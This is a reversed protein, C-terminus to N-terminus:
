RSRLVSYTVVGGGLVMGLLVLGTAVTVSTGSAAARPQEPDPRHACYGPCDPLNLLKAIADPSCVRPDGAECAAILQDNLRHSYCTQALPDLVDRQPRQQTGPPQFVPYM